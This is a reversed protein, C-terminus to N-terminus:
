NKLKFVDIESRVVDFLFAKESDMTFNLYFKSEFAYSNKFEIKNQVDFSLITNGGVL